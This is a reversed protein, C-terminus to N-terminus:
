MLGAENKIMRVRADDRPGVTENLKGPTATELYTGLPFANMDLVPPRLSLALPLPQDATESSNNKDLQSRENTKPFLPGTM